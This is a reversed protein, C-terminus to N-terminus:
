RVRLGKHVPSDSQDQHDQKDVQELSVSSELPEQLDQHAPQELVGQTVMPVPIVRPEQRDQLASPGPCAQSAWPVRYVLSGM